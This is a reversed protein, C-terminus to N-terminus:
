FLCDLEGFIRLTVQTESSFHAQPMQRLHPASFRQIRAAGWFLRRGTVPGAARVVCPLSPALPRVERNAVQM